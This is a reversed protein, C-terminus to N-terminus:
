GHKAFVGSLRARQPYRRSTRKGLKKDSKPHLTVEGVVYLAHLSFRGHKLMPMNILSSAEVRTPVGRDLGFCWQVCRSSSLEFLQACSTAM